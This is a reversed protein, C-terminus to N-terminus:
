RARRGCRGGGANAAFRGPYGVASGAYNRRHRLPKVNEAQDAEHEQHGDPLQQREGNREDRQRMRRVHGPADGLVEDDRVIQQEVSQGLRAEQVAHDVRGDVHEDRDGEPGGDPVTQPSTDARKSRMRETMSGTSMTSPVIGM